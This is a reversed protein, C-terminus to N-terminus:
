VETLDEVATNHITEYHTVYGQKRAFDKDCGDVPCKFREKANKGKGVTFLIPDPRPQAMDDELDSLETADASKGPADEDEQDQIVLKLQPVDAAAPGIKTLSAPVRKPKRSPVLDDSGLAVQEFREDNEQFFKIDMPDSVTVIHGDHKFTYSLGSPGRGIWSAGKVLKFGKTALQM